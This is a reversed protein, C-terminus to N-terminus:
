LPAQSLSPNFLISEWVSEFRRDIEDNLASVDVSYGAAEAADAVIISKDMWFTFHRGNMHFPCHTQYSYHTNGAGAWKGSKVPDRSPGYHRESSKLNKVCQHGQSGISVTKVSDPVAIENFKRTIFFYKNSEISNADNFELRLQYMRFTVDVSAYPNIQALFAILGTDAGNYKGAIYVWSGVPPYLSYAVEGTPSFYRIYRKGHDVKPLTSSCATLMMAIAVLLIVRMKREGM